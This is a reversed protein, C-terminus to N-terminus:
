GLRKKKYLYCLGTAMRRMVQWLRGQYAGFRRRFANCQTNMNGAGILTYTVVTEVCGPGFFKLNPRTVIGEIGSLILPRVADFPV